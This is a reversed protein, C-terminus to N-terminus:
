FNKIKGKEWLIQVKKIKKINIILIKINIQFNFFLLMM